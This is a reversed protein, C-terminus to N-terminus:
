PYLFLDKIYSVVWSEHLKVFARHFEQVVGALSSHVRLEAESTKVKGSLGLSEM